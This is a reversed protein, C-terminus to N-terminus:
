CSGCIVWVCILHFLLHFVNWVCVGSGSHLVALREEVLCLPCLLVSVQCAILMWLSAVSVELMSSWLRVERRAKEDAQAVVGSALVCM